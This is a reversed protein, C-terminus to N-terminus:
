NLQKSLQNDRKEYKGGSFKNDISLDIYVCRNRGDEKANYLAKDIGILVTDLSCPFESSYVTMGISVTVNISTTGLNFNESTINLRLRESIKELQKTSCNPLVALFEEGGVRGIRDYIRLSRKLINSIGKLVKDGSPHGYTDNINKFHDIDISLFGLPQKLRSTRKFENEAIDMIARRNLLGTLNDHTAIEKLKKESRKLGQQLKIIREGTTLRAKLEWVNFPKSIYDDAGANFGELISDNDSRSTLFIIYTYNSKDTKRIKRSLELGNTDPLEWDLIAIHINKQKLIRNGEKGTKASYVRYNWKNTYKEIVSRTINDDDVVLLNLM